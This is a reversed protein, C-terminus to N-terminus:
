FFFLFRSICFPSDLLRKQTKEKSLFKERFIRRIRGDAPKPVLLVARRPSPKEHTDSKPLKRLSRSTPNEGLKPKIGMKLVKRINSDISAMLPRTIPRFGQSRITVIKKSILHLLRPQEVASKPTFDHIQTNIHTNIPNLGSITTFGPNM